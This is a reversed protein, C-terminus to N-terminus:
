KLEARRKSSIPCLKTMERLYRICRRDNSMLRSTSWQFDLPSKDAEVALVMLIAYLGCATSRESQIPRDNFHFPIDGRARCVSRLFRRADAQLCPLGFPDVYLVRQPYIAVFVFHGMLSSEQRATALNLICTATEGRRRWCRKQSPIEDASFVGQFRCARSQRCGWALLPTLERCLSDIFANTLGAAQDVHPKLLLVFQSAYYGLPRRRWRRRGGLRGRRGAVAAVKMRLTSLYFFFFSAANFTNCSSLDIM